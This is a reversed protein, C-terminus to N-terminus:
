RAEKEAFIRWAGQEWAFELRKRSTLRVDETQYVQRYVVEAHRDKLMRVKPAVIDVHISKPAAIRERRQSEWTKRDLGKAPVYRESYFSLYREVDQASWASAWDNLADMVADATLPAKTSPKQRPTASSAPPPAKAAAQPRSPELDSRVPENAPRIAPAAATALRERASDAALRARELEARLKRIETERDLLASDKRTLDHRSSEKIRALESSLSDRQRLMSSDTPTPLPQKQLDLLLPPLASRTGFASDYALRALRSRVKELNKNILAAEPQASLARELSLRAADLDGLSAELAARNNWAEVCTPDEETLKRFVVLADSERGKQLLDIGTQLTARRPQARVSDPALLFGAALLPLAIRAPRMAELPELDHSLDFFPLEKAEIPMTFDIRGKKRKVLCPIGPKADSTSGNAETPHPIIQQAM